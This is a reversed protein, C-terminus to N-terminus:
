FASWANGRRRGKSEFPASWAAAISKTATDAQARADAFNPMPADSSSPATNWLRAEAARRRALGGLIEGGARSWRTLQAPVQEYWTRNLLKLLTSREFNAIGVNFVFSVLASFQNDNLPVKVLRQAAREFLRLDEDLLDQAEERTLVMGARVTRTHGYGITWVKAPCLYPTLHLGEFEKIIALGEANIRRAVLTAASVIGDDM